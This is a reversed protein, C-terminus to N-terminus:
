QTEMWHFRRMLKDTKKKKWQWRIKRMGKEESRLVYFFLKKKRREKPPNNSPHSTFPFLLFHTLVQQNFNSHAVYLFVCLASLSYCHLITDLTAMQRSTCSTAIKMSKHILFFKHLKKPPPPASGNLNYINQVM